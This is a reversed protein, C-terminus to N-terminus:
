PQHQGDQTAPDSTRNEEQKPERMGGGRRGGEQEIQFAYHRRKERPEYEPLAEIAADGQSHRRDNGPSTSVQPPLRAELARGPGSM